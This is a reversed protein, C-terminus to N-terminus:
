LESFPLTKALNIPLSQLWRWVLSTHFASHKRVAAGPFWGCLWSRSWHHHSKWDMRRAWLGQRFALFASPYLHSSWVCFVEKEGWDCFRLKIWMYPLPGEPLFPHDHSRPPWTVLTHGILDLCVDGPSEQLLSNEGSVLPHHQFLLVRGAEEKSQFHNLFFIMSLHTLDTQCWASLQSFWLSTSGPGWYKKLWQIM